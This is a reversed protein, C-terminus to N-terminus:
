WKEYLKNKIIEIDKKPDELFLKNKDFKEYKIEWHKSDEGLHLLKDTFYKKGKKNIKKYKVLIIPVNSNKIVHFIGTGPNEKKYFFLVNEKNKLKKLTRDTTKGTEKWMIEYKTLYLKFNFIEFYKLPLSEKKSLINFKENRNNIEQSMICIEAVQPDEHKCIFFANGQINSMKLNSTVKYNIGISKCPFFRWYLM